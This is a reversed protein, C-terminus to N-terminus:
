PLLSKTETAENIPTVPLDAYTVAPSDPSPENQMLEKLQQRVEGSANLRGGSQAKDLLLLLVSLLISSVHIAETKDHM